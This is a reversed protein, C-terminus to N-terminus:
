KIKVNYSGCKPCSPLRHPIYEFLSPTFEYGCNLCKPMSVGRAAENNHSFCPLIPPHYIKRDNSTTLWRSIM